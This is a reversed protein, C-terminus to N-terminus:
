TLFIVCFNRNELFFLQSVQRSLDGGNAALWGSVGFDAVQVTGDQALLINGAKIDRHIQGSSHFYDLGKLVEKLVTAITVEDLVGSSSNEKGM